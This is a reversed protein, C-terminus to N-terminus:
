RPFWGGDVPLAVGNLCAAADSCLFRALDGLRERPPAPPPRRGECSPRAEAAARDLREPSALPGTPRCRRSTLLDPCIANCTIGSAATELAIHKTFGVVGYACAIYADRNADAAPGYMSVVNVIRGWGRELMQPLVARTTFFVATLNRGITSTWQEAPYENAAAVHQVAANNILIDVRGLMRTVDDILAASGTSESVNAPSFAARIGYTNSLDKRLMEAASPDGAGNIALDFGGAALRCAIRLGAGRTSETVVAVKGKLM